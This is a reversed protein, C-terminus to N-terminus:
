AHGVHGIIVLMGLMLGILFVGGFALLKGATSQIFSALGSAKGFPWGVYFRGVKRPNAPLPDFRAPLRNVLSSWSVVELEEGRKAIIWEEVINGDADIGRGPQEKDLPVEAHYNNGEEDVWDPHWFMLTDETREAGQLLDGMQLSGADDVPQLFVYRQTIPSESSEPTKKRMLFFVLVPAGIMVALAPIM